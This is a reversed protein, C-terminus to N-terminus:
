LPAILYAGDNDILYAGDNDILFAYGFPASLRKGLVFYFIKSFLNYKRVKLKSM